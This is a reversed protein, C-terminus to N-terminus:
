LVVVSLYAVPTIRRLAHMPKLLALWVIFLTLCLIPFVIMLPQSLLFYAAAEPVTLFAIMIVAAPLRILNFCKGNEICM